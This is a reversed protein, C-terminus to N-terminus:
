VSPEITTATCEGERALGTSDNERRARWIERFAHKNGRFVNAFGYLGHVVRGGFNTVDGTHFLNAGISM